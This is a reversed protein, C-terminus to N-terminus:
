KCVDSVIFFIMPFGVALYILLIPVVSVSSTTAGLILAMASVLSIIVILVVITIFFEKM